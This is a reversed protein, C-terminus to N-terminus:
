FDIFVIHCVHTDDEKFDRGSLLYILCVQLESLYAESILFHVYFHLHCYFFFCVLQTPSLSAARVPLHPNSILPGYKPSCVTLPPECYVRHSRHEFGQSRAVLLLLKLQRCSPTSSRYSSGVSGCLPLRRLSSPLLCSWVVFVM